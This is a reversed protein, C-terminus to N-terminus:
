RYIKRITWIRHIIWILGENKKRSCCQESRLCCNSLSLDWERTLQTTASSSEMAPGWFYAESSRRITKNWATSQCPWIPKWKGALRDSWSKKSSPNASPSSRRLSRGTTAKSKLTSMEKWWGSCERFKILYYKSLLSKLSPKMCLHIELWNDWSKTFKKKLNKLLFIDQRWEKSATNTTWLQDRM